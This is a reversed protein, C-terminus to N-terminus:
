TRTTAAREAADRTSSGPSAESALYVGVVAIGVGLTVLFASNTEIAPLMILVWYLVLAAVGSVGMLWLWDKTGKVLALAGAALAAVVAFVTWLTMEAWLSEGYVPISVGAIVLVAAVGALALRVIDTTSM